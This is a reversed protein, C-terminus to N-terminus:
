PCGGALAHEIAEVLRLENLAPCETGPACQCRRVNVRLTAEVWRTLMEDESVERAMRAIPSGAPVLLAATILADDDHEEGPQRFFGWVETNAPIWGRGTDCDDAAFWFYSVTIDAGNGQQAPCSRPPVPATM